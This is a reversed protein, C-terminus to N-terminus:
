GWTPVGKILKVSGLIEWVTFSAAELGTRREEPNPMPDGELRPEPWGTELTPDLALLEAGAWTVFPTFRYYRNDNKSQNRHGGRVPEHGAEIWIDRLAAVAEYRAYPHPVGSSKTYPKPKKGPPLTSVLEGDVGRLKWDLDIEELSHLTEKARSLILGVEEGEGVLITQLADSGELAEIVKRLRDCLDREEPSLGEGDPYRIFTELRETIPLRAAVAEEVRKGRKFAERVRARQEPTMEMTCGM